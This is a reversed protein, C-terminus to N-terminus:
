FEQFKRKKHTHSINIVPEILKGSKPHGVHFFYSKILSQKSVAPGQDLQTPDLYKKMVLEYPDIM